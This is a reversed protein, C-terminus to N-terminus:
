EEGEYQALLERWEALTAPLPGEYSGRDSSIIVWPMGERTRVAAERWHAMDNALDDHTPDYLRFQGGAARVDRSSNIVVMLQDLPLTSRDGTEEVIMVNLGPANIIPPSPRPDFGGFEDSVASLEAVLSSLLAGELPRDEGGIVAEIRAAILLFAAEMGSDAEMGLISEGYAAFFEQTMSVSKAVKAWEYYFEALQSAQGDTVLERLTQEPLPSSGGTVLFTTTATQIDIEATVVAVVVNLRHDGPAAWIYAQQGNGIAILSVGEFVEWLYAVRCDEPLAVEATVVIPVGLSSTEPAIIEAGIASTVMALLLPLTKATKM